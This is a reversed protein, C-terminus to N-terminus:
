QHRFADYFRSGRFGSPRNSSTARDDEIRARNPAMWRVEDGSKIRGLPSYMEASRNGAGPEVERLVRAIVPTGEHVGQGKSPARLTVVIRPKIETSHPSFHVGADRM